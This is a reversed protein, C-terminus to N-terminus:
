RGISSLARIRELVPPHSYHLFVYFPHPLLNSLNRASLKKLATALSEPDHTTEAAFRDAAYENRRSIWQALLGAAFDIPTYLLSFFILGAYVSPRTMHFAAFLDPDSIFFSLLYFVLGMQLIGFALMGPIHKKRYHGMEHALVAVLEAVSHQAVLTDYLVIRKNRGFGAFFANSKSSRKSGDMVFVNQLPFRISRAYSFIATKLEGDEIPKFQNFLPMIWTPAIFQVALMFLTVAGWCYLWAATGAFEFFALVAALLPTGLLLGLLLGKFLDAVFTKGTTKNFGFREEIVFTDYVRFPLSLLARALILAGMYLLGTVIPGQGWARAWDDLVAFGNGFWFLILVLLHFTDTIWGFRTNVLLYAQSKRYQEENYIGAFAEPLEPRLRSLNLIDALLALAFNAALAALIILGIGNM